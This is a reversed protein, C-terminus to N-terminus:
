TLLTLLILMLERIKMRKADQAPTIRRSESLGAIVLLCVIGGFAEFGCAELPINFDFFLTILVTILVPLQV